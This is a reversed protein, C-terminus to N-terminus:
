SVKMGVSTSVIVMVMMMVMMIMLFPGTHTIEHSKSM